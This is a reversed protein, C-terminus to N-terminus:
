HGTSRCRVRAGPRAGKCACRGTTGSSSAPVPMRRSPPGCAGSGRRPMIPPAANPSSRWPMPIAKMSSPPTLDCGAVRALTQWRKLTQGQGPLPLLDLHDAQMAQLLEPLLTDLDIAQPRAGFRRLLRDLNTLDFDQVISM